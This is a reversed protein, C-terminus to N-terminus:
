RRSARVAAAGGGLLLLAAAGLQVPLGTSPLRASATSPRAVPRPASVATGCIAGGRGVAGTLPLSDSSGGVKVAYCGTATQWSHTATSWHQFARADLSLTVRKTQGPQLAVKSYGKLQKPPEQAAPPDSVYLQAVEAGARKGTNTIAFSATAGSATPTVTLGSYRFSTYSLGFGFPFLPTIHKADYWRYGVLLGESYTSHPVGQSNTVGPWQKTSQIPTDSLKKPFTYPLKGSPNTDGFLLAAAVNGDQEGPFWTELVGKVSSLWPMSVPGGTQLVVVTNPNAKAVAAILDDQTPGATSPLCGALTCTSSSLSLSSRDAGESNSDGVFVVAVDAASAAAVADATTAGDAYTVVDTDQLARSTIGQLPSVVSTNPGELPVRSSGGGQYYNQAGAPGAPGGIVAIRKGTGTLPLVGANKLLVAGGEGAQLAIQKEAATNANAAYAGPEAPPPNDFIGLRFLPRMLRVVMDDLRSMSVQHALVATKLAASFYTGKGITQEQDMGANAAAVTSHTGGWDSMVWGDFGFQGKLVKTLLYPQECAYVSNVRNYSCMVSAVQAQKVAAEFAPLHIEQMTREDADSSDTMRNTEQDNLAYHKVTAAVHQSQIGDIVAVGTQGALYPDEGAYEFNRGNLPNRAINVGPALQVDIGKTRAEWGIAAGVKRQMSTDWSAAQAIGDPFATTLIEGDGVGAGADNFVLEPICLSPVAPIDNATGYYTLDGRGYLEAVKQDLTMAKVLEHARVDASKGKDMWPCSSAASAPGALPALSAALGAAVVVSGLVLRAPRSTLM